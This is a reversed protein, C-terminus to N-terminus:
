QRTGGLLRMVQNRRANADPQNKFQRFKQLAVVAKQPQGLKRYVQMLQYYAESSAPDLKVAAELQTRAALFDGRMRLLTALDIRAQALAPNLAIAKGLEEGAEDLNTGARGRSQALLFKGYFYRATADDPHTKIYDRFKEEITEQLPGAADYVLGLLAYVSPNGPALRSAQLMAKVAEDYKGVLYYCGGMAMWMSASNPFNKANASFVKLAEVPNWHLAIETAYDLQFEENGPQLKAAQQYAILAKPYNGRKEEVDGLLNQLEADDKEALMNRLQEAAQDEKGARHYALALNYNLEYSNPKSKLLRKFQAVALNYAGDHVLLEALQMQLPYDNEFQRNLEELVATAESAQGLKVHAELIGTMVDTNSPNLHQAKALPKLAQSPKDQSLLSLGLGYLSALDDHHSELVAKFQGEASKFRRQRLFTAGLARHAAQLTPDIKLAKQLHEEANPLNGLAFESQGLLCQAVASRGDLKLACKATEQAKGYKGKCLQERAERCLEQVSLRGHSIQGYPRPLLLSGLFLLAAYKM